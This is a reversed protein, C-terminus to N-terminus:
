CITAMELEVGMLSTPNCSGDDRNMFYSLIWDPCSSRLWSDKVLQVLGKPDQKVGGHAESSEELIQM